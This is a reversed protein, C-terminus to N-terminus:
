ANQDEIKRLTSTLYELARKKGEARIEEFREFEIPTDLASAIQDVNQVLRHEFEFQNVLETVKVKNHDLCIFQRHFLMSFVTGHFTDTVVYDANAFASIFSDPSSSCGKQYVSNRGYILIRVQKEDAFARIREWETKSLEQFTYVLIYSGDRKVSSREMYDSKELLMTPDITRQVPQDAYRNAIMETNADRVAVGALRSFRDRIDPIQEFLEKTANGASVAYTLATNTPFVMGSYLDFQKLFVPQDISWLTDSGIVYADAQKRDAVFSKQAKSFAIHQQWINKVTQLDGKLGYKATRAFLLMVSHSSGIKGRKYFHVQHGQQELTKKLAYAQWYSGSNESNYVTVISLKM